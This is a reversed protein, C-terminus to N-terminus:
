AGDSSWESSTDQMMANDRHQFGWLPLQESASHRSSQSLLLAAESRPRKVPAVRVSSFAHSRFPGLRHAIKKPQMLHRKDVVGQMPALAM